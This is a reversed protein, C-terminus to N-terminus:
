SIKVTSSRTSKIVDPDGPVDAKATWTIAAITTSPTFTCPIVVNEGRAIKYETEPINVTIGSTVHIGTSCLFTFIFCKIFQLKCKM